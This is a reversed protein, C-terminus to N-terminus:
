FGKKLTGIKPSWARREIVITWDSNWDTGLVNARVVVNGGVCRTLDMVGLLALSTLCNLFPVAEVRKSSRWSVIYYVPVVGDGVRMSNRKPPGFPAIYLVQQVM